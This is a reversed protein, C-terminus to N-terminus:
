RKERGVAGTLDDEPEDLDVSPLEDDLGLDDEGELDDLGLDDEGELDDLPEDAPFADVAPQGTITGLASQLADRTGQLAGNLEALANGAQENFQQSENVGIESQISDVLAPLEKVVMDNVDEFMKQINDVMDQAALIVQSKEVEENETIVESEVVVRAAPALALKKYHKSLAQEMFVLKMYAPKTQEQYFNSSKKAESILTNVKALMNKTKSKDLNSVNFDVEFTERLATEAHKKYDLDNLNM